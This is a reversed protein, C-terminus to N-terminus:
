LEDTQDVSVVEVDEVWFDGDVVIVEVGLNEYLMMLDKTRKRRGVLFNGIFLAETDQRHEHLL